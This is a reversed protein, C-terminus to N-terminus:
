QPWADDKCGGPWHSYYWNVALSVGVSGSGSDGGQGQRDEGADSHDEEPLAEVQHWWGRPLFCADGARLTFVGVEGDDIVDRGGGKDAETDPFRVSPTTATLDVSADASVSEPSSELRRSHCPALVTWRRVGAICLYVNHYTDRHLQTRTRGVSVFLQRMAVTPDGGKGVVQSSSSRYFAGHCPPVEPMDQAFPQGEVAASNAAAAEGTSWLREVAYRNPWQACHLQATATPAGVVVPEQPPEALLMQSLTAPVSMSTTLVARPHSSGDLHFHGANGGAVFCRVPFQPARGALLHATNTESGPGAAWERLHALEEAGQLLSRLVAPRPVPGSGCCRGANGTEDGVEPQVRKRLWDVLQQQGEAGPNSALEDIVMGSLRRRARKATAPM